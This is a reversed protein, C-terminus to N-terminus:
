RAPTPLQHASLLGCRHAALLWSGGILTISEPGDPMGDVPGTYGATAYTHEDVRSGSACTFVRDGTVVASEVVVEAGPVSWRGVVGEGALIEKLGGVGAVYIRGDQVWMREPYEGTPCSWRGPVTLLGCHGALVLDGDPLYAAARVSGPVVGVAAGTAADIEVAGANTAIVLREGVPDAALGSAAAPLRTQWRMRGAEDLRFLWGGATIGAVGGPLPVVQRTAGCGTRHHDEVVLTWALGRRLRVVGVGAGTAVYAVAPDGAAARVEWITGFGSPATVLAGLPPVASIPVKVGDDAIATVEGTGADVTATCLWSGRAFQVLYVARGSERVVRVGALRGGGAERLARDAALGADVAVPFDGGPRRASVERM